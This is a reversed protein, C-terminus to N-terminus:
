RELKKVRDLRFLREAGRGVDHASLYWRGKAFRLRLPQVM